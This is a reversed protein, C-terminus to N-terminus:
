VYYKKFLFITEVQYFENDSSFHSLAIYMYCIDHKTVNKKTCQNRRWQIISEEEKKYLTEQKEKYPKNLSTRKKNAQQELSFPM